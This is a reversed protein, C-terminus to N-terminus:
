KQLYTPRTFVAGFVVWTVAGRTLVRARTHHGRVTVPELTLALVIPHMVSLIALVYVRALQEIGTFVICDADVYGVVFIGAPLNATSKPM